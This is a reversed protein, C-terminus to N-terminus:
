KPPCSDSNGSKPLVQVGFLQCWTLKQPPGSFNPAYHKLSVIHFTPPVSISRVRARQMNKGDPCTFERFLSKKPLASRVRFNEVLIKKPAVVWPIRVCKPNLFHLRNPHGLRPKSTVAAWLSTMPWFGSTNCFILPTVFFCQWLCLPGSPQTRSVKKPWIVLEFVFSSWVIESSQNLM